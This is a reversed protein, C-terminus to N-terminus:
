KTITVFMRIGQWNICFPTYTACKPFDTHELVTALHQENKLPLIERNENFIPFSFRSIGVVRPFTPYQAPVGPHVLNLSHVTTLTKMVLRHCSWLKTWMLFYKATQSFGSPSSSWKPFSRIEFSFRSIWRDRPIFSCGVVTRSCVSKGFYAM